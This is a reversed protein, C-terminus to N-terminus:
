KEFVEFEYDNKPSAEVEICHIVNFMDFFCGDILILDSMPMKMKIQTKMPLHNETKWKNVKTKIDCVIKFASTM